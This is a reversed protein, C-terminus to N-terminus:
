AAYKLPDKDLAVSTFVLIRRQRALDVFCVEDVVIYLVWEMSAFVNIVASVREWVM